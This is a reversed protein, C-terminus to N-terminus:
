ARDEGDAWESAMDAKHKRLADQATRDLERAVMAIFPRVDELYSVPHLVTRCMRVLASKIEENDMIEDLMANHDDMRTRWDALWERDAEQESLERETPATNM